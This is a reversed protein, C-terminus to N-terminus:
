KRSCLKGTELALGANMWAGYGGSVNVADHLGLYALTKAARTSRGGAQCNLYVRASRALEDLHLGVESLPINRTGPIHGTRFEGEERVDIFAHAPDPKEIKHSYKEVSISTIASADRSPAGCAMAGSQGTVSLIPSRAYNFEIRARVGEDPVAIQESKKFRTFEELSPILWHPNKRSEADLTSFILDNYDHGPFVLTKPPLKGLVSHISAWQQAPDSGPFDTRGSSGIFLTDGTFVMGAGHFCLSDPTHGPTELVELSLAGVEITGGHQLRETARESKTHASMGISAGFEQAFLHTASFHDAHVHTDLAHTIKLGHEAIYERYDDMLDVHPDIAVAKGSARDYFFYSLCGSQRFQKIGPM